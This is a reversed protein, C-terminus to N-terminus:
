GVFRVCWENLLRKTYEKIHSPFSRDVTPQTEMTVLLWPIVTPVDWHSALCEVNSTEWLVALLTHNLGWSTWSWHDISQELCATRFGVQFSLPSEMAWATLVPREGCLSPNSGRGMRIPNKTNKKSYAPKGKYTYNWWHSTSISELTM